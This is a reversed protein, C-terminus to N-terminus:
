FHKQRGEERVEIKGAMKVNRGQGVHKRCRKEVVWAIERGVGLVRETRRLMWGSDGCKSGEEERDKRGSRM